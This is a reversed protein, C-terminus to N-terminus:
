RGPRTDEDAVREDIAYAGSPPFWTVDVREVQVGGERLAGIQVRRDAPWAWEIDQAAAEGRSYVLLRERAVGLEVLYDAVAQARSKGLAQNYEASGQPDTHGALAIKNPRMEPRNLCVSLVTLERRAEANLTASDFAFTPMKLSPGCVDRLAPTYHLDVMRWTQPEPLEAVETPQSGCAALILAFPALSRM